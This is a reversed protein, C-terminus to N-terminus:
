ILGMRAMSALPDAKPATTGNLAAANSATSAQAGAPAGTFAVEAKRPKRHANASVADEYRAQTSYGKIRSSTNGNYAEAEVNVYATKGVLAAAVSSGPQQGNAALAKIDELTKGTSSLLDWLQKSNPKGNKDKGGVLVNTLLSAGKEDEDNVTFAVLFMPNKAEKSETLTVRTITAAYLGDKKLLSASGVGDVLGEYGSAESFDINFNVNAM